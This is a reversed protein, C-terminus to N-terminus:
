RSTGTEGAGSSVSFRVAWPGRASKWCSHPAARRSGSFPKDASAGRAGGPRNLFPAKNPEDGLRAIRAASVQWPEARHRGSILWLWVNGGRSALRAPASVSPQVAMRVRRDALEQSVYEKVSKMRCIRIKLGLTALCLCLSRRSGSTRSSRAGVRRGARHRHSDPRASPRGIRANHM